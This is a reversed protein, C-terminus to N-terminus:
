PAEEPTRKEQFIVEGPKVMGLEERIVYELNRPDELRKEEYTLSEIEGKLKERQSALDDHMVQLKRLQYVGQDGLVLFWFFAAIGVILLLRPPTLFAISRHLVHHLFKPM